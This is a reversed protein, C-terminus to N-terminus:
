GETSAPIQEIIAKTFAAASLAAYPQWDASKTGDLYDSIGRVFVFSDKRNGVISELVQDFETDIALCQHRAAFDVRMQDGTLIPKGSAIAGFRITPCGPRPAPADPPVPPHAVEILDDGGLNMFLRDTEPGPREFNVQQDRLLIAGSASYDEWPHFSADAQFKEALSRATDLLIVDRPAWSKLSYHLQGRNPDETIKDCYIFLQGHQNPASVVIDGLRVHSYYDAYHPVGGGVGVLIVHEIDSFTGADSGVLYDDCHHDPRKVDDDDDDYM